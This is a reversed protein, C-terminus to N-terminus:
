RGHVPPGESAVGAALTAAAVARRAAHDVDRLAGLRRDAQWVNVAGGDDVTALGVVARLRVADVLVRLARPPLGEPLPWRPDRQGRLAAIAAAAEPRWRAVELRALGEAATLLAERLSREAEALTGVVGPLHLDWRPVRHVHWTVLHGVDHVSGFATVEPVAAWAGDDVSVLVCEAAEVAAGAVTPPLGSVDGPVPLLAVTRRRGGAWAAILADLTRPAGAFPDADLGTVTHPEDDGQVATVARRVPAAGSGVGQLWLALLVSRPLDLAPMARTGDPLDM